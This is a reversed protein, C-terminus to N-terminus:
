GHVGAPQFRSVPDPLERDGGNLVYAYDDGARADDVVREFVGRETRELEHEGAAAGTRVRVSVQKARPAWVSFRTGGTRVVNAGRALSWPRAAAHMATMVGGAPTM